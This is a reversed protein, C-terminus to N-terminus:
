AITKRTAGSRIAADTRNAFSLKKINAQRNKWQSDSKTVPNGQVIVAKMMGNKNKVIKM